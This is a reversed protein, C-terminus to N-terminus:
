KSLICIFENLNNKKSPNNKPLPNKFRVPAKPHRFKIDGFSVKEVIINDEEVRDEITPSYVKTLGYPPYVFWSYLDRGVRIKNGNEDKLRILKGEFEDVTYSIDNIVYFIQMGNPIIKDEYVISVNPENETFRYNPFVGPNYDEKDKLSVFVKIKVDIRKGYVKEFDDFLIKESKLKPKEQVDSTPNAETTPNEKYKLHLKYSKGGHYHKKNCKNCLYPILAYRRHEEGIKSSVTHNKECEGCYYRKM